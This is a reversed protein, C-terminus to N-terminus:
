SDRLLLPSVGTGGVTAAVPTEGSRNVFFVEGGGAEAAREAAEFGAVEDEFLGAALSEEALEVLPARLIPFDAHDEGVLALFVAEDFEGAVFGDGVEDAEAAFEDLAEGDGGRPHGHKGGAFEEAAVARRARQLFAVVGVASEGGAGREVVDVLGVEDHM